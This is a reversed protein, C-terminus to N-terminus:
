AGFVARLLALIGQATINGTASETIKRLSAGLETLRKPDPKSKSAEAALDASLESVSSRIAEPLSDLSVAIQQTLSKISSLAESTTLSASIESHDAEGVINGITGYNNVIFRQTAKPAAAMEAEGFSLGEGFIRSRELELCWDTLM